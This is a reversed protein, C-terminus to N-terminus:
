GTKIIKRAERLSVARCFSSYGLGVMDAAEEIKDKQNRTVRFLIQTEETRSPKTINNGKPFIPRIPETPETLDFDM